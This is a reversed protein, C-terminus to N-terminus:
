SNTTLIREVWQRVAARFPELPLPQRIKIPGIHRHRTESVAALKIEDVAKLDTALREDAVSVMTFDKLLRKLASRRMPPQPEIVASLRLPHDCLQRVLWVLLVVDARFAHLCPVPQKNLVDALWVARRANLYFDEGDISTGLDRRVEDLQERWHGRSRWLSELVVGDPFFQLMGSGAWRMSEDTATGLRATLLDVGDADAYIACEANGAPSDQCESMVVLARVERGPDVRSTVGAFRHKLESAATMQDFQARAKVSGAAGLQRRWADSGAALARLAGAFADVSGAEALLGTEGHAVMEPVGAVHTSVVPLGAAMAETIVTPLVDSAGKEDVLCALVFADAGALLARVQDQSRVGCLTVCDGVGSSDIQAQLRERLPGDGVIKLDFLVGSAKLKGIADILVHFGKFEILRGVSVLQLPTGTGTPATNREFDGLAIGNYIRHIKGESGPCAKALLERSYDSVAIVFEAGSVMERLLPDNNLDVMFDQAHATFSYTFGAEKLFLATHTARNAFHVHVHQVGLRQFQAAFYCANQARTLPKTDAGFRQEHDAALAKMKQWFPPRVGDPATMVEPPAPYLTKAKLRDLREHRFSDPPANLSGITVKVGLAELAMMESDCFTQSVVPYRSYLYAVHLPEPM